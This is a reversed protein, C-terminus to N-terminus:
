KKAHKQVWDKLEAVEKEQEKMTKEAMNKIESDKGDKLVAKSTEIAALHHPIMSCAWAVDADKAMMGQMMATHMRMMADMASKQFGTMSGMLGQMNQMMPMNGMANEGGQGASKCGEPLDFPPPGSASSPATQAQAVFSLLASAVLATAVFTARIKM